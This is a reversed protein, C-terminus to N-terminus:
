PGLMGRPVSQVYPPSVLGADVLTADVDTWADIEVCDIGVDVVAEDEDEVVEASGEDVRVDVSADEEASVGEDEEAVEDGEDADATGWM